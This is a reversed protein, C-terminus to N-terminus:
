LDLFDKIEDFLQHREHALNLYFIAAPISEFSQFAACRDAATFVEAQMGVNGKEDNIYYRFAYPQAYYTIKSLVSYASEATKLFFKGQFDHVLNKKCLLKATADLTKQIGVDEKDFCIVEGEANIEFVAVTGGVYDSIELPFIHHVRVRRLVTKCFSSLNEILEKAEHVKLDSIRNEFKSFDNLVEWRRDIVTNLDSLSNKLSELSDNAALKKNERVSFIYTIAATPLAFITAIWSLFEVGRRVGELGEPFMLSTIKGLGVYFFLILGLFYAAVIVWFWKHLAKNM